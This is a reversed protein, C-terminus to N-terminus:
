LPRNRIESLRRREARLTDSVGLVAALDSKPLAALVAAMSDAGALGAAETMAGCADAAACRRSVYVLVCRGRTRRRLARACVGTPQPAFNMDKAPSLMMQLRM